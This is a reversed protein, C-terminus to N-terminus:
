NSVGGGSSGVRASRIWVQGSAVAFRLTNANRSAQIELFQGVQPARALAWVYYTRFGSLATSDNNWGLRREVTMDGTTQIQISSIGGVLAQYSGVWWLWLLGPIVRTITVRTNPVVVFGPGTIDLQADPYFRGGEYLWSEGSM